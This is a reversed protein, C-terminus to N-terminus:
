CKGLRLTIEQVTRDWDANSALTPVYSIVLPPLRERVLRRRSRPSVGHIVDPNILEPDIAVAVRKFKVGFRGQRGSFELSLGTVIRGAVDNAAVDDRAVTLVRVRYVGDAIRGAHGGTAIPQSCGYFM